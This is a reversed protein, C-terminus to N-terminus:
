LRKQYVDHLTEFENGSKKVEEYLPSRFIYTENSKKDKNNISKMYLPIM